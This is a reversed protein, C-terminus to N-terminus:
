VVGKVRALAESLDQWATDAHDPMHGLVGIVAEVLAAVDDSHAALQKPSVTPQVFDRKASVAPIADARVYVVADNPRGGALVVRQYGYNSPWALLREPMDSM